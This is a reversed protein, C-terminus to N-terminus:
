YSYKNNGLHRRIYILSRVKVLVDSAPPPNTDVHSLRREQNVTPSALSNRNNKSGGSGM